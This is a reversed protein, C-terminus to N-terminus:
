PDTSIYYKLRLYNRPLFDVTSTSRFHLFSMKTFSCKYILYHQNIELWCLNRKINNQLFGKYRSYILPFIEKWACAHLTDNGKHICFIFLFILVAICKKFKYDHIKFQSHYKLIKAFRFTSNDNSTFLVYVNNNM